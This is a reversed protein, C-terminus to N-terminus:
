GAVRVRDRAGAGTGPPLDSGHRSAGAPVGRRRWGFGLTIIGALVAAGGAGLLAPDAVGATSGGGTGPAGLLAPNRNHCVTGPAPRTGSILFDDVVRDTCPGMRYFIHGGAVNTVLISNALTAHVQRAWALPTAPDVTNSVLLIPPTGPARIPKGADPPSPVPWKACTLWDFYVFSGFLPAATRAAQRAQRAAAVTRLRQPVTLCRIAAFSQDSLDPMQSPPSFPKGEILKGLFMELAPWDRENYLAQQVAGLLAEARAPELRRLLAQFSALVAAQSSGMPCNARATCTRVMFRFTHEFSVAQTVLDGFAHPVAVSDLVMRGVADPFMKAYVQGLLTGYSFGLYDLKHEGLVARAIDLDRAVNETGVFPILGGATRACAHAIVGVAVLPAPNRELLQEQAATPECRVPRSLGVGRPDMGVIDYHARLRATFGRVPDRATFVVPLGSEGPGGPNTLLSGIRQAPDSARLRNMALRITKGGPNAYDLPVTLRACQFGAVAKRAQAPNAAVGSVIAWRPNCPGWHLTQAYFQQLGTPGGSFRQGSVPVAASAAASDGTGAVGTAGAFAIAPGGLVAALIWLTRRM